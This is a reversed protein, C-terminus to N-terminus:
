LRGGSLNVYSQPGQRKMEMLRHRIESRAEVYEEPVKGWSDRQYTREFELAVEAQEKRTVLYPLMLKIVRIAGRGQIYWKYVEKRNGKQKEPRFNGGLLRVLRCIMGPDTNSVSLKLQYQVGYPTTAKSVHVCGEGDFIGAVWGIDEPKM